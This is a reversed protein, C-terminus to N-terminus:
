LKSQIKVLGFDILSEAMDKVSKEIPIFGNLNFHHEIKYHDYKGRYKVKGMEKDPLPYSEFEQYAKLINVLDMHSYAESTALLYRNDKSHGIKIAIVHATAVDRVDICPFAIPFVGGRKKAMGNLFSLIVRVSTSDVRKSLPPGIVFGPNIVCLELLPVNKYKKQNKIFNWASQEALRKSLEYPATKITADLNWDDESWVKRPNNNKGQIAAISSTLVVKKVTKVKKACKLVNLTGDVAPKILDNKPDNVFVQFPSASHIVYDCDQFCDNFSWPDLLDAEYLECEPFLDQLHNVKEENSLDRVTGRVRYGQIILEKIIHSGIYGSAGTVAVLPYSSM